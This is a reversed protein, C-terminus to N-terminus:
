KKKLLSSTLQDKKKLNEIEKKLSKIQKNIEELDSEKVKEAEKVKELDPSLFKKKGGKEKM